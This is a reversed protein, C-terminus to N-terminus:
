YKSTVDHLTYIWDAGRYFGVDTFLMALPFLPHAVCNHIVNYAYRKMFKM